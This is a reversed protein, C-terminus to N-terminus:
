MKEFNERRRGSELLDPTGRKSLNQREKESIMSLDYIFLYM